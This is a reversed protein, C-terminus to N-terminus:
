SRDNNTAFWELAEELGLMSKIGSTDSGLTVLYSVIGANLGVMVCPPGLLEVTKALKRVVDFETTDMVSLGSFDLVVGRVTEEKLRGLLNERLGDLVENTLDTQLNAVLCRNVRTINAQVTDANM